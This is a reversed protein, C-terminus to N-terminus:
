MTKFMSASMTEIRAFGRRLCGLHSQSGHGDAGPDPGDPDQKDDGACDQRREDRGVALAGDDAIDASFTGDRSLQEVDGDVLVRSNPLERRGKSAYSLLTGIGGEIDIWSDTRTAGTATSLAYFEDKGEMLKQGLAKLMLAREHFSMKRLAPGGKSRGHALSGAFDIGSADILAVPQGTSADLLPVAQGAGRVWRGGIYSELQRVDKFPANM